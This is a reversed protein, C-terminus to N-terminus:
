TNSPFTQKIIFIASDLDRMLQERLAQEDAYKIQLCGEFIARVYSLLDAPFDSEVLFLLLEQDTKGRLAFNYREHLYNKLIETLKFYFQKNKEKSLPEEISLATLKCLANDWPFEPHKRRIYYVFLAILFSCGVIVLLFIVIGGFLKTQWFPVHWMDYIDYLGQKVTTTIM